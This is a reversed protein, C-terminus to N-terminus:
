VNNSRNIYYTWLLFLLLDFIQFLGIIETKSNNLKILKKKSHKRDRIKSRREYVIISVDENVRLVMLFSAYPFDVPKAKTQPRWHM